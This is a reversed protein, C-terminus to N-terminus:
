RQQQKPRMRYFLLLQEQVRERVQQQGRQPHVQQAQQVQQKPLQWTINVQLSFFWRL